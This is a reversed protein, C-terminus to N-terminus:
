LGQLARSSSRVGVAAVVEQQQQQQPRAPMAETALAPTPAQLLLLATAAKGAQQM